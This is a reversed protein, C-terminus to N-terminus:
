DDKACVRLCECPGRLIAHDVIYRVPRYLSWVDAQDEGATRCKWRVGASGEGLDSGVPLCLCQNHSRRPGLVTFDPNSYM